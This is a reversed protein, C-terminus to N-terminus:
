TAIFKSIMIKIPGEPNRTPLSLFSYLALEFSTHADVVGAQVRFQQSKLVRPEHFFKFKIKFAANNVDMEFVIFIDLPWARDAGISAWAIVVSRFSSPSMQIGTLAFSYHMSAQWSYFTRFMTNLLYFYM